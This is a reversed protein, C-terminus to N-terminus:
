VRESLMKLYDFRYRCSESLYSRVANFEAISAKKIWSIWSEIEKKPDLDAINVFRTEFNLQNLLPDVIIEKFTKTTM